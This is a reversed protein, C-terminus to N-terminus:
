QEEGAYICRKSLDGGLWYTIESPHQIDWAVFNAKKGIEISGEDDALGLAHAAHITVGLLSEEPTLRFLTSAMNMMLRLSLTPSTGPNMDTSIAIKVQHKRLLDIPPVKTERLFYFAGPLLVAVTGAQAMDLCGQESLYELHDASLGKFQAVLSAGEQCSLQEAHLKVPVGLKQATLFVKEVQQKSFALHECFADVADYLHEKALEPLIVDCVHDIYDDARDKYEMPISHAALCTTIVKIPLTEKLRKAVLLMKRENEYDLGYGSKLEITMVGEKILADIRKKANLYLTDEDAHRTDQVTSNIGGGQKAIDAYSMGNLRKEFEISRNGGFIAHTHCDIFAPTVWFGNLDITKEVNQFVLPLQNLAGVWKIKQHETVIAGNLIESYKSNQMTAIHCNKWLTIM